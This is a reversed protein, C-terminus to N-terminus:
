DSISDIISSEIADTMSPVDSEEIADVNVLSEAIDASLKDVESSSAMRSNPGWFAVSSYVAATTLVVAIAAAVAVVGAGVFLMAEKKSFEASSAARLSSSEYLDRKIDLKELDTAILGKDKLYLSYGVMDAQNLLNVAVPDALTLMVKFERSNPSLLSESVGYKKLVESPNQQLANALIANDFLDTTLTALARLNSQESSRLLNDVYFPSNYKKQNTAYADKDFSPEVDSNVLRGNSCSAFLVSNAALLATVKTLTDKKKM